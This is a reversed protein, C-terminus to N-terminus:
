RPRLAGARAAEIAGAAQPHARMVEELWALGAAIESAFDARAQRLIQGRLGASYAHEPAKSYRQMEPGSLAGSLTAPDAPVGMEDLIGRLQGRPDLLFADFDIWLAREPFAAAIEALACSECAFALAAMQGLGAPAALPAAMRRGLRAAWQQSARPLEARSAEGALLTAIFVEPATVMLVARASAQAGLIAPGLDAVFSTAKVLSRQGERWTRALLRLLPALKAGGTQGTAIARLMAPERLSFIAPVRGLLRSLLTSGVHGLHFIFDSEGHLRLTAAEAEAWHHREACAGGALLREDLFSAEAYGAEDLVVAEVSLGDETLRLPYLRPSRWPEPPESLTERSSM